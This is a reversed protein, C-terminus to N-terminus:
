ITLQNFYRLNDICQFCLLTNTPVYLGLRIIKKILGGFLSIAVSVSRVRIQFLFHNFKETQMCKFDFIHNVVKMLLSSENMDVKEKGPRNAM